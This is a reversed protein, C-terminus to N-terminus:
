AQPVDEGSRPMVTAPPRSIGDGHYMGVRATCSGELGHPSKGRAKGSVPVNRRMRPLLREMCHLARAHRYMGALPAHPAPNRFVPWMAAETCGRMRPLAERRGPSVTKKETCGRKRPAPRCADPKGTQPIGAHAPCLASPDPPPPHASRDCIRIRRAASWFTCGRARPAM